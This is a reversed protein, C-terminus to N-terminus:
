AQKPVAGIVEAVVPDWAGSAAQRFIRVSRYWPMSAGAAGYRWEPRVPVMAFCTKGLAGCLHVLATQVSVVLDLNAVLGALQEFDDIEAPAFARINRGALEEAVDGYQLSIFECDPRALLPQLQDLAMSRRNRGTRQTGGRWSIGIRLAGSTAGLREAWAQVVRARPAVFPEGPFEATSRRYAGGLSGAALVREFGAPDLWEDRRDLLRVQPYSASLLGHLRRDCVWTVEAADELLDPLMSAHMLQDGIGQEAVVLLSRGALDDRSPHLTLRPILEPTVFGNSAANFLQTRWRAENEPWGRAFDGTLLRVMSREYAAQASQPELREAEDLAAIAEDYRGLAKQAAAMGMLWGAKPDLRFATRHSELADEFRGLGMLADGRRAWASALNANLALAREAAELAEAHRDLEALVRARNSHAQALGPAVGIALDYSALAEAPRRLEQLLNGRNVLAAAHRPNLSLAREYGALAEERRGLAHLADARAAQAASNSPDADLARQASVLGATADGQQLQLGAKLALAGADDPKSAIAQDLLDIADGFRGSRALALAAAQPDDPPVM